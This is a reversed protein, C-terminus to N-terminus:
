RDEKKTLGMFWKMRDDRGEYSKAIAKARKFSEAEVDVFYDEPGIGDLAPYRYHATFIKTEM